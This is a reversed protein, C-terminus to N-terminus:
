LDEDVLSLDRRNYLKKLLGTILKLHIYYYEIMRRDSLYVGCIKKLM